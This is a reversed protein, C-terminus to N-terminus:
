VTSHIRGVDLKYLHKKQMTGILYLPATGYRVYIGTRSRRKFTTETGWSADVYANLNTDKGPDILLTNVRTGRLYRLVRKVAVRDNQGPREVFSGSVSTYVCLNSQTKKACYLIGGVTCRCNSTGAATLEVGRESFDLAPNMPSDVPKAREMGQNALLKDILIIQRLGIGRRSEYDMEINLFQTPRGLDNIVFHTSLANKLEDIQRGRQAFVM